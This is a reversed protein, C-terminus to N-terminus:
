PNGLALDKIWVKLFVKPHVGDSHIFCPLFAGRDSIYFNVITCIFFPFGRKHSKTISLECSPLYKKIFFLIILKIMVPTRPADSIVPHPLAEVLVGAAVVSCFVLVSAAGAAVSVAGAAASVSSPSTLM